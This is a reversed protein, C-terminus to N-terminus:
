MLKERKCRGPGFVNEHGVMMKSYERRQCHTVMDSMNLVTKFPLLTHIFKSFDAQTTEGSVQGSRRKLCYLVVHDEMNCKLFDPEMGLRLPHNLKILGIMSIGDGVWGSWNSVPWHSTFPFRTKDDTTFSIAPFCKKVPFMCTSKKKRGRFKLTCFHSSLAVAAM